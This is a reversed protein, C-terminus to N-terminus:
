LLEACSLGGDCDAWSLAQSYYPALGAPIDDAPATPAQALQPLAAVPPLAAAPSPPIAITAALAGAACAAM